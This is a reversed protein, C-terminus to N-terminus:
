KLIANMFTEAKSVNRSQGIIKDNNQTAARRMYANSCIQM